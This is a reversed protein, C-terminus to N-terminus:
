TQKRLFQSIFMLGFKGFTLSFNEIGRKDEISTLYTFNVSNWDRAAKNKFDLNSRVVEFITGCMSPVCLFLFMLKAAGTDCCYNLFNVPTEVFLLVIM